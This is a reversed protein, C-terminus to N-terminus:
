ETLAKQLKEALEKIEPDEQNMLLFMIFQQPGSAGHFGHKTLIVSLKPLVLQMMAMPNALVEPDDKAKLLSNKFETDNLAELFDPVMLLISSKNIEM